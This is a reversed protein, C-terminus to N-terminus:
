GGGQYVRTDPNFAAWAFWFHDGHVIRTLQSGALPGEVAQGLINWVSGTENDLIASGEARFTLKEGDLSPLNPDFVGTSGVPDADSLIPKGLASLTDPEFFVVIDRGGLAYNVVVEERLVPFPFAGDEDGVTVAM